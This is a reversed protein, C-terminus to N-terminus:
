SVELEALLALAVERKAEVGHLKEYARRDADRKNLHEVAKEVRRDAPNRRVAAPKAEAEPKLDADTISDVEAILATMRAGIPTDVPTTPKIVPAPTDPTTDSLSVHSADGFISPILNANERPAQLHRTTLGSASVQTTRSGNAGILQVEIRQAKM